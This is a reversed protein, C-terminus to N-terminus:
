LKDINVSKDPELGGEEYLKRRQTMDKKLTEYGSEYVADIMKSPVVIVGDGDAVVLDGPYIAVGGIGIPVQKELYRIRAQVMSQSVFKQWVPVKQLVIEDTDRVGGGNVLIGVAGKNMYELSNNSGIVGADVGCVDLCIFDGPGIDSGWDYRCVNRYYWGVWENYKEGRADPAPGEYPVYRVTYAFGIAKTRWLPKFDSSLTGYHHYGYKDMADRADAVRLMEFKRLVEQKDM